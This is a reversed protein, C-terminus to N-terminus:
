RNVEVLVARVALRWLYKDQADDYGQCTLLTLWPQQEHRLVSLDGPAVREVQRVRYEYRQGNAHVIVRDDWGLDGLRVFPGPRGDPRYVHATLASNGKWSPYATGELHGAQDWLWTLDWGTAGSPVGVIPVRVGLSPIELTLDGLEAYQRAAPAPPVTTVRGPAFGTAPLAPVTVIINANIPPDYVRETSLENYTSQPATVDGPLTSWILFGDNRVQTGAPLSGMTAQFSATVTENLDLVPWTVQLVPAATDDTAGGGSATLSGPVYTMGLPVTDSLVLDFAPSDSPPAPHNITLTFTVVGGPPVSRPAADKALTLTPEVVVVETANEILQGGVWDWTVANNLSVGRANGPNDIVVVTYRLRLTASVADPNSLTGLDFTLRRGQDEVDGPPEASIAPNTPPACIDAFGGPLTTILNGTVTPAQCDVFALGQDLVDTLTASTMTGQPITLILEYTLIEGIAADLGLTHAQNSDVLSKALDANPLTVLNNIDIDTNNEPTPDPGNAGDDAIEIVDVIQTTGPPVPDDVRVAFSLSGGAGAALDGITVTCATGGISGDDCSWVTPLSAGADFTTADPVTETIEVGTADQDGVNAYNIAYVLLSGPSVIDLGDDKTITLDPAAVLPTTESDTNNEPTPEIGNAGDDTISATNELLTVLVPVTADVTVAFTVDVAPAGAIVAVGLAWTCTSGASNDPACVWGPTSAGPNFSTHEPVV